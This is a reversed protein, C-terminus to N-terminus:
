TPFFPATAALRHTFSVPHAAEFVPAVIAAIFIASMELVQPARKADDTHHRARPAAPVMAANISCAWIERKREKQSETLPPGKFIRERAWEDRPVLTARFLTEEM